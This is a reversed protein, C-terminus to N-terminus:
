AGWGNGYFGPGWYGPASIYDDVTWYSGGSPDLAADFGICSTLGGSALLAFASLPLAQLIRRILRKSNM